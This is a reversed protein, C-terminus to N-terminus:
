IMCQAAIATAIVCSSPVKTFFTTCTTQTSSIVPACKSTATSLDRAVVSCLAPVLQTSAKLQEKMDRRAESSMLAARKMCTTIVSLAQRLLIPPLAGTSMGQVAVPLLDRSVAPLFDDPVEEAMVSLTQLAVARQPVQSVCMANHPVATICAHCLSPCPSMASCRVQSSNANDARVASLLTQLLDPWEEPFDWTAISTVCVALPTSVNSPVQFLLELLKPRVAAKEQDAIEPQEFSPNVSSWHRHILHKLLM